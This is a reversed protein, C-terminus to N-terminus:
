DARNYLRFKFIIQLSYVYHQMAKNRPEYLLHKNGFVIM